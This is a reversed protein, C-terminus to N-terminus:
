STRCAQHFPFLFPVLSPQATVRPCFPLDSPTGEPKAGLWKALRVHAELRRGLAVTSGGGGARPTAAPDRTAQPVRAVAEPLEREGLVAANDLHQLHTSVAPGAPVQQAATSTNTNAAPGAPVQQATTSTNYTPLPHPGPHRHRQM